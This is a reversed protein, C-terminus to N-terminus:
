DGLLIPARGRLIDGAANSRRAAAESCICSPATGEAGTVEFGSISTPFATQPAQGACPAAQSQRSLVPAKEELDGESPIDIPAPPLPKTAPSEADTDGENEDDETLVDYRSRDVRLKQEFTAAHAYLKRGNRLPRTVWKKKPVPPVAADQESSRPQASGTPVTASAVPQCQSKSSQMASRAPALAAQAEKQEDKQIGLRKNVIETVEDLSAFPKTRDVLKAVEQELAVRSGSGLLQSETYQCRAMTHGLNGCHLCQLRQRANPHQLVLTRGYWVIRVIGRLFDPCEATHVSLRWVTATLSEPRCSDMPDWDFKTLIHQQFYEELLGLDTFRTINYIDVEYRRKQTLRTGDRGVQRDWVSGSDPQHINALRYVAKSTSSSDPQPETSSSSTYSRQAHNYSITKTLSLMKRLEPTNARLEEATIRIDEQITQTQQRCPRITTRGCLQLKLEGEVQSQITRHLRLRERSDFVSKLFEPMRRCEIKGEALGGIIKWEDKTASRLLSGAPAAARQECIGRLAVIDAKPYVSPNFMFDQYYAVEEAPREGTSTSRSGTKVKAAWQNLPKTKAWKVKSIMRYMITKFSWATNYLDQTAAQAYREWEEHTGNGIVCLEKFLKCILVKEDGKLKPYRQKATPILDIDVSVKAHAISFLEGITLLGRIAPQEQPFCKMEVVVATFLEFPQVAPTNSSTDRAPQEVSETPAPEAETQQQTEESICPRTVSPKSESLGETKVSPRDDVSHGSAEPEPEGMDNDSEASSHQTEDVISDQTPADGKNRKESTVTMEESTSSTPGPALLVPDPPKARGPDKPAKM